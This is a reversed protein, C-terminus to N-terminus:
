DSPLTHISLVAGGHPSSLSRASQRNLEAELAEASVELARSYASLSPPAPPASAQPRPSDRDLFVILALSAALAAVALWPRKTQRLRGTVGAEVRPSPALPLFGRLEEELPDIFDSM